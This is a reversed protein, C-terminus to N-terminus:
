FINLLTRIAGGRQVDDDREAKKCTLVRYWWEMFLYWTSFGLFFSGTARAVYAVKNTTEPFVAILAEGGGLFIIGGFDYATVQVFIRAAKGTGTVSNYVVRGGYKAEFRPVFAFFLEHAVACVIASIMAKLAFKAEDAHGFIADAVKDPGVWFPGFALGAALSFLVMNRTTQLVTKNTAVNAPGEEIDAMTHLASKVSM